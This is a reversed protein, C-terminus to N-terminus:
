LQKVINELSNLNGFMYHSPQNNKYFPSFFPLGRDEWVNKIGQTQIKTDVVSL